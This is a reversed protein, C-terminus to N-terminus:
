ASQWRRSSPPMVILRGGRSPRMANTREGSLMEISSSCFPSGQGNLLRPGRHRVGAVPLRYYRCYRHCCSATQPAARRCYRLRVCHRPWRAATGPRAIPATVAGRCPVYNTRLRHPFVARLQASAAPLRTRGNCGAGVSCPVACAPPMMKCRPRARM